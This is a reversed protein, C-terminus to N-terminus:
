SVERRIFLFSLLLGPGAYKNLNNLSGANCLTANQSERVGYHTKAVACFVM